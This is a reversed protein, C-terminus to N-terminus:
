FFFVLFFFRLFRLKHKGDPRLFPFQVCFFFLFGSCLMLGGLAPSRPVCVMLLDLPCFFPFCCCRLFISCIRHSKRHHCSRSLCCFFFHWPFPTVRNDRPPPQGANSFPCLSFSEGGAPPHQLTSRFCVTSCFLSL